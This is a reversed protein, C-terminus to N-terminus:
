KSVEGGFLGSYDSLEQMLVAHQGQAAIEGDQVFMVQDCRQLVNPRHTVFICTRNRKKFADLVLKETTEDLASTGEDLIYVQPDHALLRALDVRQREGGSLNKGGEEIPAGLGESKSQVLHLLNVEDCVELLQEDPCHGDPFLLNERLTGEFLVTEQDMYAVAARLDEALWHNLNRGQFIIDGSTPYHLRGLMRALTTKGSGSPGTIGLWKGPQLSFSISELVGTADASYGFSLDRVQYEFGNTQADASALPAAQPQLQQQTGMAEEVARVGEEHGDIVDDLRVMDAFLVQIRGVLQVGNQVPKSLFPLIVTFAVLTGLTVDGSIVWFGGLGVIASASLFTTLMSAAVLIVTSSEITQRGELSKRFLHNWKNFSADQMGCAKITEISEVSEIGMKMFEGESIAFQQGLGMRRRGLIALLLANLLLLSLSVIALGPSLSFLILSYCFAAALDSLSELMEYALTQAVRDNLQIRNALESPYRQSYFALPLHLLANLFKRSMGVTMAMKLYRLRTNRTWFLLVHLLTAAVMIWLIPRVWDGDQRVIAEDVIVLGATTFFLIPIVMLISTILCHWIAAHYGKLRSGVSQFVSRKEGGRQFDDGPQMSLVIGTFSSDFERWTVKRHGTAPDNIWVHFRNFGEIVVFHAMQWHAIVPLNVTGLQNPEIRQGDAKLGYYRAAKVISSANSGARSVGCKQRLVAPPVFRGYYELIIGLCAAGCEAFDLQIRVPTKKRM